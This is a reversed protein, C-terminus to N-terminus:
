RHAATMFYHCYHQRRPPIMRAAARSIHLHAYARPSYAPSIRPLRLAPMLASREIIPMIFYRALRFQASIITIPSPMLRSAHLRQLRQGIELAPM